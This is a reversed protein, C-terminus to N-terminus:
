PDEADAEGFAERAASAANMAAPFGAYVAMQLIIELVEGRSLGANLGGRIHAKLQPQANGQATLAAITAIQRDRLGLGERSYVDGFAFEFIYRSLDPAVDELARVVAEGHDGHIERLRARGRAYRPDESM